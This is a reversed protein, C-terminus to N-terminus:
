DPFTAQHVVAPWMGDSCIYSHNGRCDTWTQNPYHACPQCGVSSFSCSSYRLLANNSYCWSHSCGPCRNWNVPIESLLWLTLPRSAVRAMCQRPHPVNAYRQCHRELPLWTSYRRAPWCVTWMSVPYVSFSRPRTVLTAIASGTPISPSVAYFACVFLWMWRLPSCRHHRCRCRGNRHVSPFAISFARGARCNMTHCTRYKDTVASLHPKGACDNWECRHM